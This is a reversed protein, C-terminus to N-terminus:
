KTVAWMIVTLLWIGVTIAHASQWWRLRRQSLDLNRALRDCAQETEEPPAAHGIEGHPILMDGLFSRAEAVEGRDLLWKTQRLVEILIEHENDVREKM